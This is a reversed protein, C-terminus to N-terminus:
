TTAYPDCLKCPALEDSASVQRLGDKGAVVACDARHVMSGRETAVLVIAGDRTGNTSVAHTVTSAQKGVEDQLRELAEVIAMSQARHEKVLQTMWHAFYFFSGLFILGLGLLGGSIVYPLQEFVYPSHAAGWWGLLVVILGLPALVGGVIMLLREELRLSAGGVRLTRVGDAFRSDREDQSAQDVLHPDLAPLHEVEDAATLPQTRKPATM